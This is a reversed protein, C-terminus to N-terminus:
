LIEVSGFLDNKIFYGAHQGDRSILYKAFSYLLSYKKCLL